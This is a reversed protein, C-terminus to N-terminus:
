GETPPKPPASAQSPEGADVADTGGPLVIGRDVDWTVVVEDGVSLHSGDLETAVRAAVRAGDRLDVVYKRVAGLYIVERIRGALRAATRAEPGRPASAAPHVSLREPRVVVTAQTGSAAVQRAECADVRLVGDGSRLAATAGSLELDGTFMNSEGIFGAVFVSAPREYLDSPAGIQEIRGRHFVAIRNSMVLAEEQDHTVYIVTVGLGRSLEMIELQLRDRLKKDLAGLPEDMLLLPPQFVIARALAVRQQQGGSLQRPVRKELGSLGVMELARAIRPRSEARGIGRADLPFAINQEVTMHPFLAYNQFVMGINRRYAPVGTLERGDLFVRGSDPQVFGAVMQLTTTKGSGSPGLLTVFEGDAADLSVRDVARLGAYSKSLSQISLAGAV